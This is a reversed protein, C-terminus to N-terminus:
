DRVFKKSMPYKQAFDDPLENIDKVKLVRCIAKIQPMTLKATTEGTIWRRWTKHPIGVAKLFETLNLNTREIILAELMPKSNNLGKNSSKSMETKETLNVAFYFATM